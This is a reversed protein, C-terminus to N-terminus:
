RQKRSRAFGYAAIGLLGSGLLLLTGPEPVMVSLQDTLAKGSRGAEPGTYGAKLSWALQDPLVGPVDINDPLTFEFTGDIKTFNSLTVFGNKDGGLDVGALKFAVWNVNWGAEFNGSVILKGTDTNLNFTIGGEGSAKTSTDTYTFGIAGAMGSFGLLMLGSIAVVTLIKIKKM